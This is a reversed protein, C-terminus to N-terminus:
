NKPILNALPRSFQLVERKCKLRKQALATCSNKKRIYPKSTFISCDHIIKDSFKGIKVGLFFQVKNGNLSIKLRNAFPKNLLETQIKQLNLSFEWTNWSKVQWRNEQQFLIPFKCRIKRSCISNPDQKITVFWTLNFHQEYFLDLNIGNKRIQYVKANKVHGSIKANLDFYTVEASYKIDEENEANFKTMFIQRYAKFFPYIPTTKFEKLDLEQVQYYRIKQM